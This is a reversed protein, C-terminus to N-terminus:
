KTSRRGAKSAIKEAQRTIANAHEIVQRYAAGRPPKIPSLLLHKGDSVVVMKSGTKLGLM